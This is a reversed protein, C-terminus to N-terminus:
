RCFPGGRYSATDFHFHDRHYGDSDPGLVTGFPGCAAQHVEKLLRRTSGRVWGEKVTIVEGDKMTFASLDIAKGKGHESIRGGRQNNRTRCAYHAAVRMEVVPGRRRFAPKLGKRVWTNLAQATECNMTAPRSLMVGSVSTISVADKVGCGRIKGPVDGVKKGQIEIDGCVSGKRKKRRKFFAKEAITDPRAWPRPSTDPFFALAGAPRAAALTVQDSVPRLRPRMRAPDPAVPAPTAGAPRARPRLRVPATRTEAASQGRVLPHLSTEPARAVAPVALLVLAVLAIGWGARTM